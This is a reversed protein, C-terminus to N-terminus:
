KDKATHYDGEPYRANLAARRMKDKDPDYALFEHLGAGGPVMPLVPVKKQVATLVCGM